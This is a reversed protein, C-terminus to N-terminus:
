KPPNLVIWYRRKISVVTLTYGLKRHTDFKGANWPGMYKQMLVKWAEDASDFSELGVQEKKM